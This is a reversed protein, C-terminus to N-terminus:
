AASPQQQASMQAQPPTRRSLVYAAGAAGAALALWGYLPRTHERVGIAEDISLAGHDEVSLLVALLAYMVNLEYGQNQNWYGNKAHVSGAAVTMTALLMAPGLPGGTGTAILVGAGIETLSALRAFRDGPQFGLHHMMQSAGNIGPGGFWGFLKQSGHGAISGGLIARTVLLALDHMGDEHKM